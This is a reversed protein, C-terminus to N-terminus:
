AMARPSPGPLPLVLHLAECCFAAAGQEGLRLRAAAHPVLRALPARRVAKRAPSVAQPAPLRLLLEARLAVPRAHRGLTRRSPPECLPDRNTEKQLHCSEGAPVAGPASFM